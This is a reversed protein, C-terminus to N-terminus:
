YQEVEGHVTEDGEDDEREDQQEQKDNGNQKGKILDFLTPQYGDRKEKFRNFMSRYTSKGVLQVFGYKILNQIKEHLRKYCEAPDIDFYDCFTCFIIHVKKYKKERAFKILKVFQMNLKNVNDLLERSDILRFEKDYCQEICEIIFKNESAADFDTDANIALQMYINQLDCEDMGLMSEIQEAGNYEM